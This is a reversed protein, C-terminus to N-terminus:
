FINTFAEILLVPITYQSDLRMRIGFLHAGQNTTGCVMM